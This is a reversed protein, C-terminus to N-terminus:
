SLLMFDVFLELFCTNSMGYKLKLNHLLNKTKLQASRSLAHGFLPANTTSEQIEFFTDVIDVDEGLENQQFAHQLMGEMAHTHQLFYDM